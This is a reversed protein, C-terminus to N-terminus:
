QMSMWKNQAWKSGCIALLLIWSVCIAAVIAAIGFLAFPLTVIYFVLEYWPMM